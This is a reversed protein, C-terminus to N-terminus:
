PAIAARSSTSGRRGPRSAPWDAPLGVAAPRAGKVVRSLNHHAGLDLGIDPYVIGRAALQARQGHFASQLSSTGTKNVGIHVIYQM